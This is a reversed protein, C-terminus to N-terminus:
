NTGNDELNKDRIEQMVKESFTKKDELEAKILRFDNVIQIYEAGSNYRTQSDIITAINDLAKKIEPKM